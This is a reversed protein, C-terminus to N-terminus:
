KSLMLLPIIRDFDGLKVRQNGLSVLLDLFNGALLRNEGQDNGSRLPARVRKRKNQLHEERDGRGILPHVFRHSPLPVNNGFWDDGPLHHCSRLYM